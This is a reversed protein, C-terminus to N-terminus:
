GQRFGKRVLKATYVIERVDGDEGEIENVGSMRQYEKLYDSLSALTEKMESKLTRIKDDLDKAQPQKLVGAKATQKVKNTEKAKESAEAYAPDNNMIDDLMEKLKRAEEAQRDIAAVATKIMSELNIMIDSGAVETVAVGEVVPTDDDM